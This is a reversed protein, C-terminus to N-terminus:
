TDKHKKRRALRLLGAYESATLLRFVHSHVDVLTVANGLRRWLLKGTWVSLGCPAWAPRLCGTRDHPPFYAQIDVVGCTSGDHTETSADDCGWSCLIKCEFHAGKLLTGLVIAKADVEFHPCGDIHLVRYTESM